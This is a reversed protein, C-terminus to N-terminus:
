NKMRAATLGKGKGKGSEFFLADYFCWSVRSFLDVCGDCRSCVGRREVVGGALLATQRGLVDALRDIQGLRNQSPTIPNILTHHRRIQRQLLALAMDIHLLPTLLTRLEERKSKGPTRIRRNSSTLNSAPSHHRITPPHPPCHLPPPSTLLHSM